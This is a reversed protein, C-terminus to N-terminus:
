QCEKMKKELARKYIIHKKKEMNKGESPTHM